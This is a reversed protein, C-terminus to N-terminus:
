TQLIPIRVGSTLQCECSEVPRRLYRTRSTRNEMSRPTSDQYATEPAREGPLWGGRSGPQFVRAGPEPAAPLRLPGRLGRNGKKGQRAPFGDGNLNRRLDARFQEALVAGAYGEHLAIEEVKVWGFGAKEIGHRHIRGKVHPGINAVYVM